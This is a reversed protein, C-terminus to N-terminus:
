QREFTTLERLVALNRQQEHIQDPQVRQIPQTQQYVQLAVADPPLQTETVLEIEVSKEQGKTAIDIAFSMEKEWSFRQRRAVGLAALAFDDHCSNIFLPQEVFYARLANIAVQLAEVPSYPVTKRYFREKKRGRAPETEQIDRGQDIAAQVQSALAEDKDRLKSMLVRLAEEPTYDLGNM